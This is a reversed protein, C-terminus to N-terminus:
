HLPHNFSKGSSMGYSASCGNYVLIKARKRGQDM